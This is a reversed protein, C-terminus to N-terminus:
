VSKVTIAICYDNFKLCSWCNKRIFSLHHLVKCTIYIEKTTYSLFFLLWVNSIALSLPWLTYIFSSFIWLNVSCWISKVIQVHQNILAFWILLWHYGLSHFISYPGKPGAKAIVSAKLTWIFHKKGLIM